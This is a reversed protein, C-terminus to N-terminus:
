AMAQKLPAMALRIVYPRRNNGDRRYYREYVSVLEQQLAKAEHEGLDLVLHQDWIAPAAKDLLLETASYGDRSRAEQVLSRDLRDEADRGVRVGWGEYAQALAEQGAGLSVELSYRLAAASRAGLVGLTEADTAEFPVFFGDAVARYHKIPRGGRAEVRAVRLLQLDLLQRIRYLMSSVAVGLETAVESATRERGIFPELFRSAQPDAVFRAARPDRLILPPSSLHMQEM